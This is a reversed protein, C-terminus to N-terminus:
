FKNNAKDVLLRITLNKFNDEIDLNYKHKYELAKELAEQESYGKFRLYGYETQSIGYNLIPEMDLRNIYSTVEHPNTKTTAIMLYLIMFKDDVKSLDIKNHTKELIREREYVIIKDKKAELMNGKNILQKIIEVKNYYGTLYYKQPISSWIGTLLSYLSYHYENEMLTRAAIREDLSENELGGVIGLFEKTKPNVLFQRKSKYLCDKMSTEKKNLYHIFIGKFNDNTNSINAYYLKNDYGFVKAQKPIVMHRHLINEIEHYLQNKKINSYTDNDIGFAEFLESLKEDIVESM